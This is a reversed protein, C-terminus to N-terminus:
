SREQELIPKLYKRHQPRVMVELQELAYARGSCWVRTGDDATAYHGTHRATQYSASKAKTGRREPMIQLTLRCGHHGDTHQVLQAIM